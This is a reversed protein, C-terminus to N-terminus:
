FPTDGTDEKPPTANPDDGKAFINETLSKLEQMDRIGCDYGHLFAEVFAYNILQYTEENVREQLEDPLKLFLVRDAEFYGDVKAQFYNSIMRECAELSKDGKDHASLVAQIEHLTRITIKDLIRKGYDADATFKMM